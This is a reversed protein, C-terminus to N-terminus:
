QGIHQHDMENRMAIPRVSLFVSFGASARGGYQQALRDPVLSISLSAGASPVFSSFARFQRVYGAQLKGVTFVEDALRPIVLDEGTKQNIEGRGFVSNKADLTFSSEALLASTGVGEVRNHGWAVTTASFRQPDSRRHYTASATIRDVDIRASGVHHLEADNLHGASLQFAWRESPLLWFRSAVSDLRDLDLDYRNEDPERGNFLSGEVKWRRQYIGATVVGFSIHTSDLWHHSIPAVPNALSSLRHPFAVPGLAPEGALAAYLEYAVGPTIQHQYQAALEMFLDHPHQRDHIPDSDCFEGTALLTPYGCEGVTVPELSIMGRLALPGGAVNRSAMGMLWNTSGFQDDGRDGSEDVYQIFLNEHLMLTWSGIPRHIAYMPTTDPLWSTGSGERAMSIGLPATMQMEEHEPGQPKPESPHQHEPPPPPNQKPDQSHQHLPPPATQAHVSGAFTFFIVISALRVVTRRAFDM